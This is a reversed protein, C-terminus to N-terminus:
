VVEKLNQPEVKSGCIPCLGVHILYDIYEKQYTAVENAQLEAELRYKEVLSTHTQRMNRKDTCNLMQIRTEEVQALRKETANVQATANITISATEYLELARSRQDSSAKIVEIDAIKMILSGIVETAEALRNTKRLIDEVAELDALWKEKNESATRLKKITTAQLEAQTLQMEAQPMRATNELVHKAAQLKQQQSQLQNHLDLLATYKSLAIEANQLTQSATNIFALSNLIKQQEEKKSAWQQRQAKLESLVQVLKFKENIEEWKAKAIDITEKLRELYDYDEIQATLSEIETVLRKEDQRCRYLDTQLLRAAYDIEETGALKGLVKARAPASITKGLFPGDLQEALNLNLTMDGIEIPSIGTIQQVELPVISGFGELVQEPGDTVDVIYRNIGGRSRQRIVTHGTDMTVSVKAQNSGIKIFDTGSPTNYTLWRLARIIATKGSDSPGVIVTLKGPEAPQLTTYSHSQFNQITIESIYNTRSM